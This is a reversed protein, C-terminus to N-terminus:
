ALSQSALWEFNEFLKPNKRQDRMDAVLAACRGWVMAVGVLDLTLGMHLVGNKVFTGLRECITLVGMVDLYVPSDPPHDAVLDDFSPPDNYTWLLEIGSSAREGSPGNFISMLLAADDKTPRDGVDGSIPMAVERDPGYNAENHRVLSRWGLMAAGLFGLAVFVFAVATGQGSIVRLVMGIGVTAIV